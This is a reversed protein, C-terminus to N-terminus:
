QSESSISHRAITIEFWNRGDCSGQTYVWRAPGNARVIANLAERVTINEYKVSRKRGLKRTDPYGIKGRLLQPGIGLEVEGRKVEDMALLQGLAEDITSSPLVFEAIRLELFPIENRSVVNIVGDKIQWKYQPDTSVIADLADRVSSGSPTLQSRVSQSCQYITGLGGSLRADQLVAFLAEDTTVSSLNAKVERQLFVEDSKPPVQVALAFTALMATAVPLALQSFTRM